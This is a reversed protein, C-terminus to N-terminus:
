LYWYHLLLTENEPTTSISIESTCLFTWSSSSSDTLICPEEDQFMVKKEKEEGVASSASLCINQINWLNFIYILSIEQGFTQM